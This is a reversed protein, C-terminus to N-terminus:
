LAFHSPMETVNTLQAFFFYTYWSKSSCQTGSVVLVILVRMKNCLDIEQTLKVRQLGACHLKLKIPYNRWSKMNLKTTETSFNSSHQFFLIYM